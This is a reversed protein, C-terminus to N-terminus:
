EGDSEVKVLKYISSKPWLDQKAQELSSYAYPMLKLKGNDLLQGHAYMEGEPEPDAFFLDFSDNVFQVDFQGELTWRHLISNKIHGSLPYAGIVEGPNLKVPDGSRTVVRIGPNDRWEKIQFKRRNDAM